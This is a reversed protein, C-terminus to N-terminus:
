MKMKMLLLATQDMSNAVEPTSVLLKVTRTYHKDMAYDLAWNQFSSLDYGKKYLKKLTKYNGEKVAKIFISNMGNYKIVNKLYIKLKLKRVGEM